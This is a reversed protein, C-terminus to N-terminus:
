VSLLIYCGCKWTNMTGCLCLWLNAPCSHQDAISSFLRLMHLQSPVLAEHTQNGRHPIVSSLKVVPISNILSSQCFRHVFYGVTDGSAGCLGSYFSCVYCFPVVSSYSFMLDAKYETTVVPSWTVSTWRFFAFWLIRDENLWCLPSCGM